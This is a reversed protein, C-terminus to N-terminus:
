DELPFDDEDYTRELRFHRVTAKRYRLKTGDLIAYSFAGLRPTFSFWM